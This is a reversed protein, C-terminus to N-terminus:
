SDGKWLRCRNHRFTDEHDNDKRGVLGYLQGKEVHMCLDKLVKHSGYSYNLNEVTLM